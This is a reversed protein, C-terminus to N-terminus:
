LYKSVKFKKDKEEIFYKQDYVKGDSAVYVSDIKHLDDLINGKEPELFIKKFDRLGTSSTINLKHSSIRERGKKDKFVIYLDTLGLARLSIPRDGINFDPELWMRTSTNEIGLIHDPKEVFGQNYWILPWYLDREKDVQIMPIVYGIQSDEYQSNYWFNIKNLPIKDKILDSKYDYISYYVENNLRHRIIYGEIIGTYVSYKRTGDEGALRGRDVNKIRKNVNSFFAVENNPTVFYNKQFKNNVDSRAYFYDVFDTEEMNELFLNTKVFSEGKKEQLYLDDDIRAISHYKPKIYWKDENPYALGYKLEKGREYCLRANAKGWYKPKSCSYIPQSPLSSCSSVVLIILACLITQM